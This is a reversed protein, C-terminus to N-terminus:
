IVAVLVPKADPPTVHGANAPSSQTGCRRSETSTSGSINRSAGFGARVCLGFVNAWM